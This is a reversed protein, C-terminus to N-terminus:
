VPSDELSMGVLRAVGELASVEYAKWNRPESTLVCISGIIEGGYTVPAGMYGRFTEAWPQTCTVPHEVADDVVFPKGSLVVEVCGTLEVPLVPWDGPPFGVVTRQHIDDLANIQCADALLLRSAAFALHDLRETITKELLGSAQLAQLRDPDDLRRM